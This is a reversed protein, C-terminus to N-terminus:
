FGLPALERFGSDPLVRMAPDPKVKSKPRSKLAHQVARQLAVPAPALCLLGKWSVPRPLRRIDRLVFWYDGPCWGVHGLVAGDTSREVGRGRVVTTLTAVGVVAEHAFRDPTKVGNTRVRLAEVAFRDLTSSAQIYVAGRYNTSSECNEHLMWSWGRVAWGRKWDRVMAWAWPQQVLLVRPGPSVTRRGRAKRRDKVPRPRSM